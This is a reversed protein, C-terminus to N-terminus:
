YLSTYTDKKMFDDSNVIPKFREEILAISELIFKLLEELNAKDM